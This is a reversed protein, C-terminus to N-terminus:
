YIVFSSPKGGCFSCSVTLSELPKRQMKILMAEKDDLAFTFRTNLACSNKAQELQKDAISNSCWLTNSNKLNSILSEQLELCKLMNGKYENEKDPSFTFTTEENAVREQQVGMYYCIESNHRQLARLLQAEEIGKPNLYSELAKLSKIDKIVGWTKNVAEQVFLKSSDGPFLYYTNKFRDFGLPEVRILIPRMM